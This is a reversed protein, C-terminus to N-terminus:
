PFRLQRSRVSYASFYGLAGNSFNSIPNAPSAAQPGGGRALRITRFYDYVGKDICQLYVSLLEGTRFINETANISATMLNGDQVRDDYIFIDPQIDGNRAVIIRYYNNENAKDQFYVNIGNSNDRGIHRTFVTLSEINVPSPVISTAIYEKGDIAVTLTYIRGPVGQMTSAEYTGPKYEPILETNGVDDHLTILAGSIPPFTNTEDFNVTQSLEVLCWPSSDSLTGEIVIHPDSSNLDIDVIKECSLSVLSILVLIVIFLLPYSSSKKEM